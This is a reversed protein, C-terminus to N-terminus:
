SSAKGKYARKAPGGVEEAIIGEPNSDPPGKGKYERVLESM